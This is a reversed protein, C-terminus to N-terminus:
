LNAALQHSILLALDKLQAPSVPASLHVVIFSRRKSNIAVALFDDYFSNLPITRGNKEYVERIAKTDEEKFTRELTFNGVKVDSQARLAPSFQIGSRNGPDFFGKIHDFASRSYIRDYMESKTEKPSFRYYEHLLSTPGVFDPLGGLPDFHGAWDQAVRLPSWNSHKNWGEENFTQVAVMIPQSWLEGKVEVMGRYVAANGTGTIKTMEATPLSLNWGAIQQRTWTLQGAPEKAEEAAASAIHGSTLLGSVAALLLWRRTLTALM